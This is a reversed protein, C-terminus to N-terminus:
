KAAGPSPHASGRSEARADGGNAVEGQAAQSGAPIASECINGLRPNWPWEGTGSDSTRRGLDTRETRGVVPAVQRSPLPPFWDRIDAVGVSDGFAAAYYNHEVTFDAYPVRISHGPVLRCLLEDRDLNFHMRCILPRHAYISCRGEKLFTCPTGIYVDRQWRKIKDFRERQERPNSGELIDEKLLLRDKHPKAPKRGIAKGIVEAEASNVTVGINCCHSCGARCAALPTVADAVAAVEQRLWQVKAEASKAILARELLERRKEQLGPHMAERLRAEIADFGGDDHEQYRQEVQHMHLDLEDPVVATSM